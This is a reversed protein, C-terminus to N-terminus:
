DKSRKTQNGLFSFLFAHASELVEIFYNRDIKEYVCDKFSWNYNDSCDFDDFYENPKVFSLYINSDLLFPIVLYDKMSDHNTMIFTTVESTNSTPQIIKTIFKDISNSYNLEPSDKFVNCYHYRMIQKMADEISMEKIVSSIDAITEGKELTLITEEIDSRLMHCEIFDHTILINEDFIGYERGGFILSYVCDAWESMEINLIKIKIAFFCTNGFTLVQEM